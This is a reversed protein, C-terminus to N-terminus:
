GSVVSGNSTRIRSVASTISNRANDIASIVGDLKSELRLGLSDIANITDQDIVRLVDAQRILIGENTTATPVGTQPTTGTGPVTKNAANTIGQVLGLQEALLINEESIKKKAREGAAIIADAKRDAATAIKGTNEEYAKAEEDLREKLENNIADGHEQLQKLEEAQAEALLRKRGEIYEIAADKETQSLNEDAKIKAAEEDLKRMEEIQKQRTELFENALAANGAQAIEQARRFAEEYQAAYVAPDVGEPLDANDSYFDYRSRRTDIENKDQQEKLKKAYDEYIKLLNDYHKQEADEFKDQFKDQQALLQNNIKEADTLKPSAGAGKKGKQKQENEYQKELRNVNQVAKAYEDTGKTLAGVQARAAQLKAATTDAMMEAQRLSDLMKLRQANVQAAIPGAIQFEKSGPAFDLGFDKLAKMQQLQALANILGYAKQEAVGFEAQLIRAGEAATILGNAAQLAVAYLAEQSFKLAESQTQSNISEIANNILEQTFLGTAQAAADTSAKVAADQAQKDKLKQIHQDLIPLAENLYTGETLFANALQLAAQAGEPGLATLEALKQAFADVNATNEAIGSDAFQAVITNLEQMTTSVERLRTVVEVASLGSNLLSQAFAYQTTSLEAFKLGTIGTQANIEQIKRNFEDLSKTNSLIATYVANSKTVINNNFLQQLGSAVTQLVPILSRVAPLLTQQILTGAGTVVDTIVGGLKDFEVAATKTQNILLDETIGMESLRANLGAIKDQGSELENLGNLFERPIEFRRALSTIEGSFFEKLAIAAGKMGQAPDVIALKRALNTLQNVEVGATRATFIFGSIDAQVEAFSGGFRAQEARAIALNKEYEQTTGSLARFTADIKEAQNALEIPVRLAEFATQAAFAFGIIKNFSGALNTLPQNSEAIEKKVSNLTGSLTALAQRSQVTGPTIQDIANNLLAIAGKADGTNRAYTSLARANALIQSNARNQKATTDEIVTNYRGATKVAADMRKEVTSIVNSLSVDKGELTVVVTGAQVQTM